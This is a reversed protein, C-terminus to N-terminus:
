GVFGVNVDKGQLSSKLCSRHCRQPKRVVTTANM